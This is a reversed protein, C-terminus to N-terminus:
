SNTRPLADHRYSSDDDDTCAGRNLSEGIQEGASPHLDCQQLPVGVKLAGAAAVPQLGAADVSEVLHPERAAEVGALLKHMATVYEQREVYLMQDDAKAM